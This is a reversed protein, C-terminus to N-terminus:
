ITFEEIPPPDASVAGGKINKLAGQEIIQVKQLTTFVQNLKITAKKM